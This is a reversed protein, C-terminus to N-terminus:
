MAAQAPVPSAAWTVALINPNGCVPCDARLDACKPVTEIERVSKSENDWFLLVAPHEMWGRENQVFLSVADMPCFSCPRWEAKNGKRALADNDLLQSLRNCIVNIAKKRDGTFPLMREELLMVAEGITLAATNKM